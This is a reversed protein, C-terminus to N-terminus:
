QSKDEESDETRKSLILNWMNYTKKLHEEMLLMCEDPDGQKLAEFILQHESHSIRSMEIDSFYHSRREKSYEYFWNVVRVLLTNGTSGVITKHFRLDEAIISEGALLRNESDKLIEWLEELDDESRKTAARQIAGVELVQRLDIASEIKKRSQFIGANVELVLADISTEVNMDRLYIGSQKRREVVRLVELATIAERVAARTTSFKEAFERESFLREGHEFHRDRIFRLIEGQLREQNSSV